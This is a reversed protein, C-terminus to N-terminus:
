KKTEKKLFETERLCFFILFLITVERSTVNDALWNWVIFKPFSLCIFMIISSPPSSVAVVIFFVRLIQSPIRPILSSVAVPLHRNKVPLISLITM